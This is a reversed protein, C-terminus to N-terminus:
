CADDRLVVDARNARQRYSRVVKPHAVLLRNPNAAATSRDHGINGPRYLCANLGRSVATWVLREAVWKSQNYGGEMRDLFIDIGSDEMYPTEDGGPFVGSSSIYQLTKPKGACAFKLVERTGDVTHPKIVSYPYVYNVAAACHFVLDVKSALENYREDDLGLQPQSLDGAVPVIREAMAQGALGYFRLADVVRNASGSDAGDRDRALCYFTADPSAAHLLHNLLFAGLFGTTGTVFIASAESLM